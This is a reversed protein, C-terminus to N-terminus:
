GKIMLLNSFVLSLSCDMKSLTSHSFNFGNYNQFLYGTYLVSWDKISGTLHFILEDRQKCQSPVYKRYVVKPFSYGTKGPLIVYLLTENYKLNRSKIGTVWIRSEKPEVGDWLSCRSSIYTAFQFIIVLNKEGTLM